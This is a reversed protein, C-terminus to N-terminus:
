AALRVESVLRSQPRLLVLLLTFPGIWYCANSLISRYMNQHLLLRVDCGCGPYSNVHWTGGIRDTKEVLEFNRTGFIRVLQVALGLGSMGAGIILVDTDTAMISIHHLDVTHILHVQESICFSQNSIRCTLRFVQKYVKNLSIILIFM